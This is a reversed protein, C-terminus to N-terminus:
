LEDKKDSSSRDDKNSSDGEMEDFTMIKMSNPWPEEPNARMMKSISGECYDNQEAGCSFSKEIKYKSRENSLPCYLNGYARFSRSLSSDSALLKGGCLDMAFDHPTHGVVIRNIDMADNSIKQIVSNVNDCGSNPDFYGRDQIMDMILELAYNGKLREEIANAGDVKELHEKYFNQFPLNTLNNLADATTVDPGSNQATSEMYDVLRTSLGGHVVIADAVVAVLPQKTLWSLLGSDFLGQAYEARWTGLRAQAKKRFEEDEKFPSINTFLDVQDSTTCSPACLHVSGQLGKDYVFQLASSLAEYIEEDDERNQVWESELYEEPHMFSYAYDYFPASLPYPNTANFSLSTDLVLFVDHNGLITVVNDPFTEQLERVFYLVGASASGKDVYDGLFVMADHEPDGIWQYPTSTLDVLKTKEVWQKACGVDAHLDGIFHISTLNTGLQRLASVLLFQLQILILALLGKSSQAIM